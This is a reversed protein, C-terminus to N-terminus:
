MGLAKSSEEEEEEAAALNEPPMEGVTTEGGPSM